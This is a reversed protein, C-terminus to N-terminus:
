SLFSSIPTAAQRTQPSRDEPIRSGSHRLAYDATYREITQVTEAPLRRGFARDMTVDMVNQWREGELVRFIAGMSPRFCNQEEGQIM